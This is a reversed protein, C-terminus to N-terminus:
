FRVRERLILSKMKVAGAGGGCGLFLNLVASLVAVLIAHKTEGWSCCNQM